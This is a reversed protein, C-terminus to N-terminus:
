SELAKATSQTTAVHFDFWRREGAMKLSSENHINFGGIFAKAGDVVLIKRHNRVNFQLPNKWTWRHFWKLKVGYPIMQKFFSGHLWSGSGAADIHLRVDVGQRAKEQLAGIFRQGVEDTAFIYSELYISIEAKSIADVMATFLEDGECYVSFPDITASDQVVVINSAEYNCLTNHRITASDINNLM